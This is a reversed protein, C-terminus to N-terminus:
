AQIEIHFKDAQSAREPNVEWIEELVEKHKLPDKLVLIIYNNITKQYVRYLYYNTSYTKAADLENGKLLIAGGESISGKVEIFRLVNNVDKKEDPSQNFTSRHEESAFTLIDCRPGHYGVVGSVKLPFRQEKEEFASILDECRQWDTIRQIEKKESADINGTKPSKKRIVTIQIKPPKPDNIKPEVEIKGPSIPRPPEPPDVPTNNPKEGTNVSPTLNGGNNPLPPVVIPGFSNETRLEKRIRDIDPMEEEGLLRRLLEIRDAEDCQILQAFQSGSELNFITAVIQGASEAFLASRFTAKHKDSVLVFAEEDKILWKFPQTFSTDITTSEYSLNVQLTQCTVLKLSQISKLNEIETKRSKHRLAVLLPKIQEFQTRLDNNEPRQEFRIDSYIIKKKDLPEVGFIRKVQQNGSKKPLDVIKIRSTLVEPFDESDAHHLERVPYYRIGSPGRGWMLGDKVFDLPAENWSPEKTDIHHLISRYFTRAAQGDPDKTPLTLLINGIQEKTLCSIDPIVGANEWARRLRIKDIGYKEFLPHDFQAPSPFIRELSREGIICQNPNRKKGDTTLLWASNELKWKTYNPLSGNYTRGYHKGSPRDTLTAYSLNKDRWQSCRSDLVLWVIIAAPEANVIYDIGDISRISSVNPENFDSKKYYTFEDLKVGNPKYPLSELIFNLYGSEPNNIIIERPLDSVGLWKLFSIYNSDYGDVGLVNADALLKKPDSKYLESLWDGNAVPYSENFYLKKADVYTGLKTRLPITLTDPISAEGRQPYLCFLTILVDQWTESKKDPNRDIRKNAESIIASAISALSYENVGFLSLKQRLDSLSRLKLIEMLKLRLEENLFRIELWDPIDFKKQEPAQAQLFVRSGTKIIKGEQDILLNPATATTQILNNQILQAIAQARSTVDHFISQNLRNTLETPSLNNIKLANYCEKIDKDLPPLAIDGFQERPLWDISSVSIIKVEEPKKHSGSLTPILNFQKATAIVEQDFEAKQLDLNLDKSKSILKIRAWPNKSVDQQNAVEALYKAVEKFILINTENARPHKRNGELELSVHCYVPYPFEIELPFFSFLPITSNIRSNQPIALIINYEKSLISDNKEFIKWSVEKGDHWKITAMQKANNREKIVWHRHIQGNIKILIEDLSGAFLMTASYLSELQKKAENYYKEHDFPIGIVTDYNQGKIEFLHAITLDMTSSNPDIFSPFPLTPIVIEDQSECEKKVLMRLKESSSLLKELTQKRKSEDYALYLHNSFIIPKQCWNLISRFGLGKQGIINRRKNKKPSLNSFLFSRVGGTSFPEGTNAVTLLDATLDIMVRSKSNIEAAADNANQLLEFIERGSYDRTIQREGNYDQILREPQISYVERFSKEQRELWSKWDDVSTPVFDPDDESLNSM